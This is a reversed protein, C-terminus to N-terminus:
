LMVNNLFSILIILHMHVVKFVSEDYSGPSTQLAKYGAGDNFAWTRAVNLGHQSADQFTTTVKSMTSPESAVYMLWYSNFGNIYHPRGNLLFHTGSRQVFGGHLKKNPSHNSIGRCDGYQGVVLAVMFFTLVLNQFGM